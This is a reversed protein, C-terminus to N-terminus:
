LVEFAAPNMWNRVQTKVNQVLVSMSMPGAPIAVVVWISGTARMRILDGVKM